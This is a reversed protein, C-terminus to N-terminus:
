VSLYNGFCFLAFDKGVDVFALRAVFIMSLNASM